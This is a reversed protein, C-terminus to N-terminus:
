LHVGVALVWVNNQTPVLTVQVLVPLDFLLLGLLQCFLKPVLSESKAQSSPFCKCLPCLGTPTPERYHGHISACYTHNWDVGTLFGKELLYKTTKDARSPHLTKVSLIGDTSILKYIIYQIQHSWFAVNPPSFLKSETIM